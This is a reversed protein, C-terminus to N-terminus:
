DSYVVGGMGSTINLINYTTAYVDLPSLKENVSNDFGTFILRCDDIQSFNCTGSPQQEEPHLAFSYVGITGYTGGGNGTHYDYIQNRTFYKLNKPTFQDKGNIVLQMKVNTRSINDGREIPIGNLPPSKLFYDYYDKTVIPRPTAGGDNSYLFNYPYKTVPQLSGGQTPIPLNITGGNYLESIFNTNNPQGSIIIEKVPNKFNLKIENTDNSSKLQLQEILYMHSNQAFKTRELSDLYIYDGFFKINDKINFLNNYDTIVGVSSERFCGCSSFPAINVILNVTHYQLAILPIALGPNQCFWFKLPIYCETSANKLTIANSIGNGVSSVSRGSHTYAMKNYLIDAESTTKGYRDILGINKYPNLETLDRWITLWKGYHRDIVVGGIQIEVQNILSHSFDSAITCFPIIGQIFADFRSETYMKSPNMQIWIKKLLDGNRTIPVSVRSNFIITDEPFLEISEVAFNTHRHFVSKFFTIQPNGTLYFDQAGYAVLQILGGGM